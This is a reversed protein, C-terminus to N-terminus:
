HITLNIFCVIQSDMTETIQKIFKSEQIKFGLYLFCAGKM